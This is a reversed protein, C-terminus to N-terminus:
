RSVTPTAPASGAAGMRLQEMTQQAYCVMIDALKNFCKRCIDGGCLRRTTSSKGDENKLSLNCLFSNPYIQAQKDSSHGCIDCITM